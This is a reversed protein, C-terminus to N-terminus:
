KARWRGTKNSGVREMLGKAKLSAMVRSLTRKSKGTKEVLMDTTMLGEEKLLALVITETGNLTTGEIRRYDPNTLEDNRKSDNILVNRDNRSFEITFDTERNEFSGRVKADECASYIRRFGSGFTEVDKCLYLVKAIIENRLYSHIDKNVFDLPTYSNAFSGPNIITIRNSFVDIEHNVAIDYRAHVFSNIVAERLAEVPIEPIEKRQTNSEGFEARWRINRVIYNMAADILQFINGDVKAIDLFTIKHESAFVARNLTIPKNKSFLVKGANTLRTGSLVGLKELLQKKDYEMEPLRGCLVAAEFFKKLTKECVDELTENSIHNEWNEEYEQNIMVKRLEGPTLERDEDATRIYYKGFASYPVDSGSFEVRIVETGDIRETSITPFIQPRISEFIKRSIDRVTSDTITFPYPAGDNKLGFYLTGKKHKNLIASISIMGANLEGTTKKFETVEDEKRMEFDSRFVHQSM